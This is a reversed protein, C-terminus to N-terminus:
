VGPNFTHGPEHGTERETGLSPEPPTGQSRPMAPNSGQSPHYGSAQPAANYGSSGPASRYGTTQPTSRMESTDSAPYTSPTSTPSPAPTGYRYGTSPYSTAEYASVPRSLRSRTTRTTNFRRPQYGPRSRPASAKIFRVALLGLAFAGGLFVAPQRRAFREVDYVLDEVDNEELYGSFRDIQYAARNAYEALMGQDNQRLQQGVSEVADAVNGLLDAAQDLGGTLRM